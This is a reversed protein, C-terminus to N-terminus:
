GQSTFGRLPALVLSHKKGSVAETDRREAYGAVFASLSQAEKKGGM